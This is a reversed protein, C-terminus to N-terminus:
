RRLALLGAMAKGAARVFKDQDKGPFPEDSGFRIFGIEKSNRRVCCDAVDAPLQYQGFSGRMTKPFRRGKPLSGGSSVM